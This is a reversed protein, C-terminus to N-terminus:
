HQLCPNSGETPFIGCETSCGLGDALVVSAGTGQLGHEAVPSAMAILLKCMAVLSYAMSAVVLSIGHPLLSGACGFIILLFYIIKKINLLSSFCDQPLILLCLCLHHSTWSFYTFSFKRVLLLLVAQGHFPSDEFPVQFAPFLLRSLWSGLTGLLLEDLRPPAPPSCSPSRWIVIWGVRLHCILTLYPRLM